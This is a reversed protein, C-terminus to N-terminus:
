TRSVSLSKFGSIKVILTFQALFPVIQWGWMVVLKFNNCVYRTQPRTRWVFCDIPQKLYGAIYIVQRISFCGAVDHAFLHVFLESDPAQCMAEFIYFPASVIIFIYQYIYIYVFIKGFLRVPSVIVMRNGGFLWGLLRQSKCAKLNWVTELLRPLLALIEVSFQGQTAMVHSFTTNLSFIFKSEVADRWLLTYDFRRANTVETICLPSHDAKGWARKGNPVWQNVQKTPGSVLICLAVLQFESRAAFQARTEWDVQRWDSWQSLKAAFECYM